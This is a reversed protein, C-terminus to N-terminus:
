SHVERGKLKFIRVLFDGLPAWLSSIVILLKPGSFPIVVEARRSRLARLVARAVRGSPIKASVFPVHLQAIMPTDVRGPLITTAWVGTGHLEQRLVDMFGTIAFKSSVYIADPPLGKKGDVSSVVVIHGERRGLMHPLVKMIIRLSGYFNVAMAREYEPISSERVPRRQYIGASCVVIDVRGFRRLTEEVLFEVRAADTVDTPISHVAGGKRRGERELEQLAAENRAAAVVIVGSEVLALATDRGIGSSAGTVIAVRARPANM